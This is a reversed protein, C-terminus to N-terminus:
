YSTHCDNVLCCSAEAASFPTLSIGDTSGGTMLKTVCSGESSRRNASYGRVGANPGPNVRIPLPPTVKDVPYFIM